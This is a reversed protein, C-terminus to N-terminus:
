AELRARKDGGHEEVGGYGTGEYGTDVKDYGSEFNRETLKQGEVNFSESEGMDANFMDEKERMPGKGKTDVGRSVVNYARRRRHRRWCLCGGTLLALLVIAGVVAIIIIYKTALGHSSSSSASASPSPSNDSNLGANSLKEAAHTIKAPYRTSTTTPLGLVSSVADDGVGAQALKGLAHTIKPNNVGSTATAQHDTVLNPVASKAGRIGLLLVDPLYDM